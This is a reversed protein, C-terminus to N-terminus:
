HKPKLHCANEFQSLNLGAPSFSAINDPSDPGPLEVKFVMAGALRRVSDKDMDLFHGNWNWGHHDLNSDARVRVEVQPRGWFSPHDPRVRVGPNFHGFSYNGSECFINIKPNRESDRLPNDGELQFRARKVDTMPDKSDFELWKGGASIPTVKPERPEDQAQPPGSQTQSLGLAVFCLFVGALVASKAVIRLGLRNLVGKTQLFGIRTGYSNGL